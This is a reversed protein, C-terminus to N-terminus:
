LDEDEDPPDDWDSAGEEDVAFVEALLEDLMQHLAHRFGRTQAPTMNELAVLGHLNFRFGLTLNDGMMRHFPLAHRRAITSGQEANGAAQTINSWMEYGAQVFQFVTEWNGGPGGPGGPGGAGRAGSASAQQEARRMERERTAAEAMLGPYKALMQQLAKQAAEREGPSGEEALKKVRLYRDVIKQDPM